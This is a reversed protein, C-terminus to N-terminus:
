KPQQAASTSSPRRLSGWHHRAQWALGFIGRTGHNPHLEGNTKHSIRNRILAFFAAQRGSTNCTWQDFAVIGAFASINQVARHQEEPLFDYVVASAPHGPYRSRFSPGPKFVIRSRALQINFEETRKVFYESVEM